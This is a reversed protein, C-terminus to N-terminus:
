TPGALPRRKSLPLRIRVGVRVKALYLNRGNPEPGDGTFHPETWETELVDVRNAGTTSREVNAQARIGIGSCPLTM